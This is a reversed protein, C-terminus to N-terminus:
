VRSKWSSWSLVLKWWEVLCWRIKAGYLLKPVLEVPKLSSDIMMLTGIKDSTAYFKSIYFKRLNAAIQWNWDLRWGWVEFDVSGGNFKLCLVVFDGNEFFNRSVVVKMILVQELLAFWPYVVYSECVLTIRYDLLNHPSKPKPLSFLPILLSFTYLAHEREEVKVLLGGISPNAPSSLLYVTRQFLSIDTPFKLPFNISLPLLHSLSSRWSRCIFRLRLIGIKM